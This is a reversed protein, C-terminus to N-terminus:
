FQAGPPVALRSPRRSGDAAKVCNRKHTAAASAFLGNLSGIRRGDHEGVDHVTVIHPHNLASATEAEQKFRRQADADAVAASLFKIAVPRNLKTDTARYVTGSGGRGLVSDIRYHALLTGVPLDDASDITTSRNAGSAGVDTAGQQSLLRRVSDRLRADDGTLATVFADREAPPRELAARYLAQIQQDRASTM